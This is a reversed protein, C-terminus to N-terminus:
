FAIAFKGYFGREFGSTKGEDGSFGKYSDYTVNGDKYSSKYSNGNLSYSGVYGGVGLCCRGFFTFIEGYLRADGGFQCYNGIQSLTKGNDEKTSATVGNQPFEGMGIMVGSELAIHGSAGMPLYRVGAQGYIKALTNGGNQIGEAGFGIVRGWSIHTDGQRKKFNIIRCGSFRGLNSQGYIFDALWCNDGSIQSQYVLQKSLGLSLVYRNAFLKKNKLSWNGFVQDKDDSTKIFSHRYGALATLSWSSTLRFNVLASIQGYPKLTSEAQRYNDAGNTMNILIHTQAYGGEVRLGVSFLEEYDSNIQMFLGARSAWGKNSHETGVIGGYGWNQLQKTVSVAAGYASYDGFSAEMQASPITWVKTKPTTKTNSASDAVANVIRMNPNNDVIVGYLTEDIQQASASAVVAMTLIAIILYKKM